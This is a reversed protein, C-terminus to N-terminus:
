RVELTYTERALTPPEGGYYIDLSVNGAWFGGRKELRVELAQEACRSQQTPPVERCTCAGPEACEPACRVCPFPREGLLRGARSVLVKPSAPDPTLPAEFEVLHAGKLVLWLADGRKEVTCPRLKYEPSVRCRHAGVKPAPARPPAAWAAGATLVLAAACVLARHLPLGSM